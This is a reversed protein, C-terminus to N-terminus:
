DTIVPPATVLAARFKHYAEGFLLCTDASYYADLYVGSEGRAMAPHCQVDGAHEVDSM